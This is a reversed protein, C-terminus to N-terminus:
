NAEVAKGDEGVNVKQARGGVVVTVGYRLGNGEHEIEAEVARGNAKQEAAAVARRLTMGASQVTTPKVRNFFAEVPHSESKIVLGSTADVHHEILKGDAGLVKIEYQAIGGEVKFRADVARGQGKSEATEIAQLLPVKAANVAQLSSADNARHGRTGHPSPAQTTAPQAVALSTLLAVVSSTLAFRVM